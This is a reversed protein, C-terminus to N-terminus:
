GNEYPDEIKNGQKSYIGSKILNFDSKSIKMIPINPRTKEVIWCQQNMDILVDLDFFVGNVM